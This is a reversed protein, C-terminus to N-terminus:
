LARDAKAAFVFDSETLGDIKHTWVKVVAEGWRLEIDPHHGQEEALAGIRDVFGLADRFNKFAYRKLLHHGEVLTWGQELQGYLRQLEAGALPPVGGRCPVCSGDALNCHMSSERTQAKKDPGLM